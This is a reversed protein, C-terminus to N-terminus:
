DERDAEIHEAAQPMNKEVQGLLELIQGRYGDSIEELTLVDRRLGRFMQDVDAKDFLGKEVLRLMFTQAMMNGVQAVLTSM